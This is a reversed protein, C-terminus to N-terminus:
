HTNVMSFGYLYTGDVAAIIVSGDGPTACLVAKGLKFVEDGEYGRTRKKGKRGKFTPVVGEQYPGDDKTALVSTCSPLVAKVLRGLM